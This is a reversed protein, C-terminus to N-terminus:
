RNRNLLALEEYQAPTCTFSYMIKRCLNHIDESLINFYLDGTMQNRLDNLKKLEAIGEEVTSFEVESYNLKLKIPSQPTNM